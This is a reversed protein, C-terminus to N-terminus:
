TTSGLVRVREELRLYSQRENRTEEKAATVEEKVPALREGLECTYTQMCRLQEAQIEHASNSIHADLQSAFISTLSPTFSVHIFNYGIRTFLLWLLCFHLFHCHRIYAALKSGLWANVFIIFIFFRVLFEVWVPGGAGSRPRVKGKLTPIMSGTSFKPKVSTGSSPKGASTSAYEDKLALSLIIDLLLEWVPLPPFTLPDVPLYGPHTVVETMEMDIWHRRPLSSSQYGKRLCRFRFIQIMATWRQRTKASLMSRDEIEGPRFEVLYSSDKVLDDLNMASSSSVMALEFESPRRKGIRLPVTTRVIVAPPFLGSTSSVISPPATVSPHVVALNM